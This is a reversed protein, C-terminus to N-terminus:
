RVVQYFIGALPAATLIDHFLRKGASEGVVIVDNGYVEPDPARAGRIDKIDFRAVMRQGGVTRFVIAERLSAYDSTGGAQALMRILTSRGIVPYQGPKNVSGEVTVLQSVAETVAVSVQPNQIYRGGLATEIKRAFSAPTEGVAAIQGVLPMSFNGAGDVTGNTTLDAVGFVTVSLKDLPGIRYEAQDRTMDAISPAPLTTEVTAASAAEPKFNTGCGSLLGALAGIAIIRGYIRAEKCRTAAANSSARYWMRNITM